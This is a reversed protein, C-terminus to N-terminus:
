ATLGIGRVAIKGCKTESGRECVGLLHAPRGSGSTYTDRCLSCDKIVREVFVKSQNVCFRGGRACLLCEVVCWFRVIM